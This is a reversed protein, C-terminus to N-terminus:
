LDWIQLAVVSILNLHRGTDLPERGIYLLKVLLLLYEGLKMELLLLLLVLSLLNLLLDVLELRLQLMVLVLILLLWDLFFGIIVNELLKM